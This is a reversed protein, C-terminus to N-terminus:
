RYADQKFSHIEIFHTGLKSLREYMSDHKPSFKCNEVFCVVQSTCQYLIFTM